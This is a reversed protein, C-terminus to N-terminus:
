YFKALNALRLQKFSINEVDSKLASLEAQLDELNKRCSAVEQISELASVPENEKAPVVEVWSSSFWSSTFRKEFDDCFDSM